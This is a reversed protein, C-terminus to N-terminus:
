CGEPAVSTLQSPCHNHPDTDPEILVVRIKHRKFAMKHHMKRKDYIYFSPGLFSYTRALPTATLAPVLAWDGLEWHEIEPVHCSLVPGM